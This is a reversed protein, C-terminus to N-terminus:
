KYDAISHNPQSKFLAKRLYTKTEVAMNQRKRESAYNPLKEKEEEEEEDKEKEEEDLQSNRTHEPCDLSISVSM